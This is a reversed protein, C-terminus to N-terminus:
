FVLLFALFLEVFQHDLHQCTQRARHAIVWLFAFTILSVDLFGVHVSTTETVSQSVSKISVPWSRCRM